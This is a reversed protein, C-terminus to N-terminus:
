SSARPTQDRLKSKTYLQTLFLIMVFWLVGLGLTLAVKLLALATLAGIEHIPPAFTLIVDFFVYTEAVVLLWAVVIIGAIPAIRM